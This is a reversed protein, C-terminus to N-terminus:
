SRYGFIKLVEQIKETINNLNEIMQPDISDALQSVESTVANIENSMYILKDYLEILKPVVICGAYILAIIVVILVALRINRLTENLRKEKLLEELIERDSMEEVAKRKM